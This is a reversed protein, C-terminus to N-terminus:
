HLNFPIDRIKQGKKKILILVTLSIKKRQNTQMKKKLKLPYYKHTFKERTIERDIIALKRIKSVRIKM